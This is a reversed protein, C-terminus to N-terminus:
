RQGARLAHYATRMKKPTFDSIFTDGEQWDDCAVFYKMALDYLSSRGGALDKGSPSLRRPRHDHGRRGLVYSKQQQDVEIGGFVGQVRMQVRAQILPRGFPM